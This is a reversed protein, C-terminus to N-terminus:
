KSPEAHRAGRSRLWAAVETCGNQEAVDLPTAAEWSALWDLDAGPGLPLAAAERRGGSCAHWFAADLQRQDPAIGGLAEAVRQLLGLAAAHWLETQAGCEVLRRAADWKKFGVANSLPAGWGLVAGPADLDAGAEILAELAAMDASSAARHLPAESHPGDCADDVDAVAVVAAVFMAITERAKPFHVPWDTAIHLLSRLANDRSNAIRVTVLDPREDLLGRLAGLDGAQIAEVVREGFPETDLLTGM